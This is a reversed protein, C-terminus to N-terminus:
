LLPSGRAASAAPASHPATPRFDPGFGQPASACGALLLGTLIPLLGKVM